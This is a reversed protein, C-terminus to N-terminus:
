NGDVAIKRLAAMSVFEADPWKTLIEGLLQDLAELGKARNAPDIGGSFAARHNSIIAPKGARFAMEIDEMCTAVCNDKERINPEFVANRTLISLNDIQKGIYNFSLKSKGNGIPMKRIKPLDITEIGCKKLTPFIANNCILSPATFTAAQYGFIQEFMKLGDEIIRCHEQVEIIEDVDFAAGYGQSFEKPLQSGDIMFFESEFAKITIEDRRQLAKMWRAVNLHERGHFQPIFFGKAIGERFHQMVNTRLDSKAYTTSLTEYYYHEFNSQRIRDFDPNAVLTMATIVPHAGSRDRHKELVRFLQVLDEDTELCDVRNFRNEDMKIGDAVLQNRAAVSKVRVSGWDDSAFVILKRKTTWGLQGYFFNLINKIM